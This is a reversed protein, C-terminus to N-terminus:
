SPVARVTELSAWTIVDLGGIGLGAGVLGGILAHSSSSPIGFRWTLINWLIAGVLASMAVVIGTPLIGVVPLRDIDVVKAVTNAVQTQGLLAPLFNFLASM